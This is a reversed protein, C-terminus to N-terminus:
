ELCLERVFKNRNGDNDDKIAKYCMQFIALDAIALLRCKKPDQVKMYWFYKM